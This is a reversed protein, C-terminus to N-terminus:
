AGLWRESTSPPIDPGHTEHTYLRLRLGDPDEIVVLWGALGALMPSHPAGVSDLHNGWCELDHRSEVALSIPDFGAQARAKAADHRLELLTGLGPVDLIVAFLTGDPKKHDLATLRKAGLAAEYFAASRALDSVAIKFHHIGALAPATM